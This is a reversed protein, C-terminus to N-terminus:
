SNKEMTEELPRGNHLVMAEELTTLGFSTGKSTALLRALKILKSIVRYDVEVYKQGITEAVHSAEDPSLTTRLLLKRWM